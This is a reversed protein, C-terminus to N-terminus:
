RGKEGARPTGLALRSGLFTLAVAAAIVLSGLAPQGVLADIREAWIGTALALATASTASGVGTASVISFRSLGLLRGLISGVLAGTGNFPVAIFLALGVWAARFMWPNHELVRGSSEGAAALRKAVIPLRDLVHIGGMIVLATAVDIYVVLAALEWHGVPAQEVAGALIVLKGGGVFTGAALSAIFGAAAPSDFLGTALLILAFGAIPGLVLARRSASSLERPAPAPADDSAPTM